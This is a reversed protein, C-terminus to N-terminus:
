PDGAGDPTQHMRQNSVKFESDLLGTLDNYSRGDIYLLQGNKDFTVDMRWYYGVGLRSVERVADYWLGSGGDKGSVKLEPVKASVAAVTDGIRLTQWAQPVRAKALWFWGPCGLFVVAPVILVFKKM